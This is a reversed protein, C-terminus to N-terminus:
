VPRAAITPRELAQTVVRRVTEVALPKTLIRNPMRELFDLTERRVLDGTSFVFRRLMEPHDEAVREYLQRGDVRPMRLDAVILDFAGRELCELAEVGDRALTVQAGDEGLVRAFLELVVPEDEVVLIRRGALPQTATPATSETGPEKAREPEEAAVIPLHVVFSAGSAFRSPEFEIKGGHERVIGYSVSLGLGTGLGVEKTTFFPDFIRERIPPPVGPGDDEVRVFLGTVDVGTRVVVTGPHRLSAIAQEANNILNLLVQEIQHFDFSTRPLDDALDVQTTIQSSRLHYAKLDLVKRVCENLDHSRKEPPHRRAFSLLKFVIKQCRMASEVIRELDRVHGADTVHRRLLEAYGVVGSLPNNLEHAVGAVVEGLSSLREAQALNSEVRRLDTVDRGIWVRGAVEGSAGLLRASALSIERREGDPRQHTWDRPRGIAPRTEAPDPEAGLIESLRRGMAREASWGLIEQAGRNFETIAGSENTAVIMDPTGDLVRRLTEGTSRHRETESAADRYLLANKLANASAGAALKCFRIEDTRFPSARRTRLFLAGLVERGYLLPVVLLSRYGKELLTERVSAILPSTTVDKVLVPERTELARRIEPYKNLDVELMEAEPHGKSAVVFCGGSRGDALLISCGEVGMLDGVTRVISRMVQGLDLTSGITETIELLAWQESAHRAPTRASSLREGLVGFAAAASALVLAELVLTRGALIGLVPWATGAAAFLGLGCGAALATRRRDGSFTAVLVVGLLAAVVIARAGAAVLTVSAVGADLAVLWGSRTMRELRESSLTFPALSWAVLPAALVLWRAPSTTQAALALIAFAVPLRWVLFRRAKAM